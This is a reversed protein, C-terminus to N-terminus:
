YPQYPSVGRSASEDVCVTRQFMQLQEGDIKFEGTSMKFRCSHSILGSNKCLLYIKLAQIQLRNM